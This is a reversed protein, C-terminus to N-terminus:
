MTLVHNCQRGFILIIELRNIANRAIEIRDTNGVNRPRPIHGYGCCTCSDTTQDTIAEHALLVIPLDDEVGITFLQTLLQVRHM